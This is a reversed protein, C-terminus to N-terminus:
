KVAWCSIFYTASQLCNSDGAHEIKKYIKVDDAYMKCTVGLNNVYGPLEYTYLLFLIPSLVGGQPVGSFATFVKSYQGRVKVQYTRLSLFQRLWDIILPHIGVAKMKIILKNVPVKDFAKSFDFFVVDTHKKEEAAKSWDNLSTLVATEVSRGKIFSHQDSSIM